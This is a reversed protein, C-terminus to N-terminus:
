QSTEGSRYAAEEAQVQEPTGYLRRMELVNRDDERRVYDAILNGAADWEREKILIGHEYLADYVLRGADDWSRKTGHVLDMRYHCEEILLGDANYMRAPGWRFGDRFELEERSGGDETDAWGSYWEGKHHYRSDREYTIEKRPVRKNSPHTTM